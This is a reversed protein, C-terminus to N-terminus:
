NNEARTAIDRLDQTMAKTTAKMGIGGFLKMMIKLLLSSGTEASFVMTLDTGEGASVLTFATTYDTGSSHAKVVTRREPEVEAVWMEETAERGFMKRTERWRTGAAYGEGSVREVRSVGSLTQQANDLDTLVAWVKAPSAAVHQTLRIENSAM